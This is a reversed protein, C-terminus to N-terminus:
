AFGKRLATLSRHNAPGYRESADVDLTHPRDVVSSQLRPIAHLPTSARSPSVAFQRKATDSWVATPDIAPPDQTATTAARVKASNEDQSNNAGGLLRKFWIDNCALPKGYRAIQPM